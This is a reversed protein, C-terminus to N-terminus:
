FLKVMITILYRLTITKNTPDGECTIQMTKRDSKTGVKLYISSRVLCHMCTHIYADIYTSMYTKM